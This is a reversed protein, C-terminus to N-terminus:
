IVVVITTTATAVLPVEHVRIIFRVLVIPAPPHPRIARRPARPTIVRLREPAPSAKVIRIHGEFSDIECRKILIDVHAFVDDLSLFSLKCRNVPHIRRQMRESSSSSASQRVFVRASPDELELVVMRTRLNLADAVVQLLLLHRAPSLTPVGGCTLLLLHDEKSNRALVHHCAPLNEPLLKLEDLSLHLAVRHVRERVRKAGPRHDLGHAAPQPTEVSDVLAVQRKVLFKVDPCGPFAHVQVNKISPYPVRVHIKCPSDSVANVNNIPVPIWPIFVSMPRVYCARGSSRLKPYRFVSENVGDPNKSLISAPSPRADDLTQVPNCHIVLLGGGSDERKPTM